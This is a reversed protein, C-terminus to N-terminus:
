YPKEFAVKRPLADELWHKPNLQFAASRNTIRAAPIKSRNAKVNEKSCNEFVPWNVFWITIFRLVLTAPQSTGFWQALAACIQESPLRLLTGNDDNGARTVFKRGYSLRPENASAGTLALRGRGAQADSARQQRCIVFGVKTWQAVTPQKRFARAPLM